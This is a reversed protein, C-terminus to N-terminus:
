EMVPPPSLEKWHTIESTCGDYISNSFVWTLTGDSWESLWAREYCEEGSLWVEVTHLKPPLKDNINIWDQM